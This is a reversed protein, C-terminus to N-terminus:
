VSEDHRPWLCRAQAHGPLQRRAKPLAHGLRRFHKIRSFLLRETFRAQRSAHTLAM